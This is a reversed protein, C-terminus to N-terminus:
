LVISSNSLSVGYENTTQFSIILLDFILVPPLSRQMDQSNCFIFHVSNSFRIFPKNASVSRITRDDFPIFYNRIYSRPLPTLFTFTWFIFHFKGIIPPHQPLPWKGNKSLDFQQIWWTSSNMSDNFRQIWQITSNMLDNHEDLRRIWQITSNMLNNFEDFWQIWRIMSNM